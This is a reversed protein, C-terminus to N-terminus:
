EVTARKAVRSPNQLVRTLTALETALVKSQEALTGELRELPVPPAQLFFTYNVGGRDRPIVRSFARAVQGDPFGIAWDVTGAESVATVNLEVEVEGAPTRMTARRGDVEAFAHTWEPLNRPDAIYDFATEFPVDLEVSQVDFHRIQGM